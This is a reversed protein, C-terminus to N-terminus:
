EVYGFEKLNKEIARDLEQTKAVRKRWLLSLRLMKQDYPEDDVEAEEAGVFRGPTLVAGHKEIVDKTKESKSFGAIDQYQGVDNEGRWAHYTDAIRKVDKDTL